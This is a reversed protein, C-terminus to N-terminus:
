WAHQCAVQGAARQARCAERHPLALFFLTQQAACTRRPPPPPPPPPPASPPPHVPPASVYARSARACVCVCVYMGFVAAWFDSSLLSLNFFASGAHLIIVPTFSYFLWLALVFGLLLAVDSAAWGFAQISALEDQLLSLQVSSIVAGVLGLGALVVTCGYRIALHEQLINSCGYLFAATIAMADGVLNSARASGAGHPDLDARQIDQVVLALMGLLCLAIGALHASSYRVGLFVASLFVVTPITLSDLLTINTMPANQYARVILYNAEVDAFAFLMFKPVLMIDRAQVAREDPVPSFWLELLGRRRGTSGNHNFYLVGNYFIALMLYNCLAALAPAKLGRGVLVASTAGTTVLLLSLVQGGALMLLRRAHPLESCGWANSIGTMSGHTDSDGDGMQLNACSPKRGRPFCFFNPERGARRPTRQASHPHTYLAPLSGRGLGESSATRAAVSAQVPPGVGLHRGRADKAGKYEDAEM